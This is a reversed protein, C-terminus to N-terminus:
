KVMLLHLQIFVQASVHSDQLVIHFSHIQKHQGAERGSLTQKFPPKSTKLVHIDELQWGHKVAGAQFSRWVSGCGNQLVVCLMFGYIDSEFELQSLTL